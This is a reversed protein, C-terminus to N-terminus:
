RGSLKRLQDKLRVYALLEARVFYWRAGDKVPVPLEDERGNIMKEHVRARLASYSLGVLEAAEHLDVFPDAKQKCSVRVKAM